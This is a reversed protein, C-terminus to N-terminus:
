ALSFADGGGDFLNLRLLPCDSDQLGYTQVFRRQLARAVAEDGMHFFALISHPLQAPTISSVDLVLENHEMSTGRRQQAELARQLQSPPFVCNWDRFGECFDSACGDGGQQASGMSNGDGPYICRVRATPALVFGGRGDRYYVHRVQASIISSPWISDYEACWLTSPCPLWPAGQDWGSLHDFQMILVGASTLDNSPHGRAFRTNLMQVLSM